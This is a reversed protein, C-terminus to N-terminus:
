EEFIAKLDNCLVAVGAPILERVQASNYSRILKLQLFGIIESWVYSGVIKQSARQILSTLFLRAQSISKCFKGTKPIFSIEPRVAPGLVYSLPTPLCLCCHIAGNFRSSRYPKAIGTVMTVARHDRAKRCCSNVRSSSYRSNLEPHIHRMPFSVLFGSLNLNRSFSYPGM